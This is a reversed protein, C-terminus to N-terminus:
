ESSRGCLAFTHRLSPAEHTHTSTSIRWVLAKPSSMLPQVPPGHRAALDVMLGVRDPTALASQVVLEPAPRPLHRAAPVQPLRSTPDAEVWGEDVAHAYFRTLAARHSRLTERSWDDRGAMWEVLHQHTVDGPLLELDSGIRLIQLRRLRVTSPSRRAARMHTVWAAVWASWSHKMAHKM